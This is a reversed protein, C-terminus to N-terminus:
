EQERERLCIENNSDCNQVIDILRQRWDPRHISDLITVTIDSHWRRLGM